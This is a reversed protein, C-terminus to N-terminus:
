VLDRASDICEATMGEILMLEAETKGARLGEIANSLLRMGEAKGEAKGENRADRTALELQRDFTLDLMEDEEILERNNRFFDPLISNDICYEIAEKVAAKICDKDFGQYLSRVKDVFSMYGHIADCKETLEATM